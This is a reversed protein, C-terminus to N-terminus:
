EENIIVAEAGYERDLKTELWKKLDIKEMGAYDENTCAVFSKFDPSVMACAERLQIRDWTMIYLPIYIMGMVFFSFLITWAFIRRALMM